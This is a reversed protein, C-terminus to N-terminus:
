PSPKKLQECALDVGGECARTLYTKALAPDKPVGMGLTHRMALLFCAGRDNGECARKLLAASKALDKETGRGALYFASASTCADSYGRECTALLLDLARKPDAETGRGEDIAKALSTCGLKAGGTCALEFYRYAEADNKRVGLGNSFLMGLSWCGEPDGGACARKFMAFVDVKAAGPKALAMKGLTDCAQFWGTACADSLLKEAEAGRGEAFAIEGLRACAPAVGGSCATGLLAKARALDKPVGRGIMYSRGLIACSTKSGKECQVGCDGSDEPACIHAADATPKACKGSEMAVLGKACTLAEEEGVNSPAPAVSKIARLEIRIPSRCQAPPADSSANASRCAELAGDHNEIVESSEGKGATSVGFVDAAGQVKARTGTKMAFAGVTASRVFHTARSCEGQLDKKTVWPRSATRKGVLALAIDLTAGRELSAGLKQVITNGALPLNARLEEANELRILQEKEAVGVFGYSGAVTCDSLLELKKCDYAVVVLSKAFAAELDGRRDIRWDVVFPENRGEVIPCSEVGAAEAYTGARPRAKEASAACGLAAGCALFSVFLSRM